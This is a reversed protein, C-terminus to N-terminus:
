LVKMHTKMKRTKRAMSLAKSKRSCGEQLIHYDVLSANGGTVSSALRAIGWSEATQNPRSGSSYYAGRGKNVIKKLSNLTCGTKAALQRTPTLSSVGYVQMAKAIHPSSVHKYSNLKPRSYYIGRKYLKRSKTLYQKQKKTDKLSLHKPVYRKPVFTNKQLEVKPVYM